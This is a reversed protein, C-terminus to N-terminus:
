NAQCDAYEVPCQQLACAELQAPTQASQACKQVICGFLAQFATRAPPAGQAQCAQICNFDGPGCTLACDVVELCSLGQGVVCTGGGDCTMGPGCTGCDAGCGDPGCEKGDCSPQCADNLCNLGEDRCYQIVCTQLAQGDQLFQSCADMTCSLLAQAAARASPGGRAICQQVCGMAYDCTVACDLIQSCSLEIPGYDAPMDLMTDQAVDPHTDPQVDPAVDVPSPDAPADAPVDEVVGDPPSEDGAPDNAVDFPPVDFGPDWPPVDRNVDAGGHGDTAQDAGTAADPTDWSLVNVAPSGSDCAQAAALPVLCALVAFRFGAM